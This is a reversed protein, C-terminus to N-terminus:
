VLRCSSCTFSNAILDDAVAIAFTYIAPAHEKIIRILTSYKAVLYEDRMDTPAKGRLKVRMAELTNLKELM